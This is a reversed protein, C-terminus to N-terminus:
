NHVECKFTPKSSMEAMLNMGFLCMLLIKKM